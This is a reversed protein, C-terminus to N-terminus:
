ISLQEPMYMARSELIEHISLPHHVLWRCQVSFCWFMIKCITVDIRAATVIIVFLLLARRKNWDPCIAELKATSPLLTPLM